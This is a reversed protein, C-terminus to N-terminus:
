GLHVEKGNITVVGETVVSHREAQLESVGAVHEHKEGAQLYVADRVTQVLEGCKHVMSEVFSRMRRAHVAIEPSRLALGEDGALELRGGVAHLKVDGQFRLSVAGRTELVGIVYCAGDKQVVLLRDGEAFSYPFALALQALCREGSPLEVEPMLGRAAVVRAPGLFLESASSETPNTIPLPIPQAM